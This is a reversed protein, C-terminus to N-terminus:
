PHKYDQYVPPPPQMNPQHHGFNSFSSYQVSHNRPNNKNSKIQLIILSTLVVMILVFISVVILSSGDESSSIGDSDLNTSVSFEYEFNSVEQGSSLWIKVVGSGQISPTIQIKEIHSEGPQIQLVGDGGFALSWGDPPMARIQHSLPVSGINTIEVDINTVKNVEFTQDPINWSIARTADVLLSYSSTIVDIGDVLRLSFEPESNALVGDEILINCVLIEEQNKGISPTRLM